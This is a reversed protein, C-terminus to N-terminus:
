NAAIRQAKAQQARAKTRVLLRESSDTEFGETVPAVRLIPAIREVVNRVTPAAVWGGTAYNHTKETGKPEDVMILVVYRPDDMPFAGVFSAIRKNRVYRGNVPKDSTGTKGGVLFGKANAKGGTGQRVVLRMLDRMTRSTSESIVRRGAAPNHTDRKLLTAPIKKVLVVAGM